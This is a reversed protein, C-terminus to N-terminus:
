SLKQVRAMHLNYCLESTAKLIKHYGPHGRLVEFWSSDLILQVLKEKSNFTEKWENIGICNIVISKVNSFYQKRQVHLAPCDLLMHIIDEDGLACCKCSASESTKSFKHKNTQLLYTGTVLRCKTIGRRVETITSEVSLWVPHTLGIRLSDINLYKLTSKGRAESQLYKSWHENVAKKVQTKWQEKSLESVRLDRVHPLQYLDLIQQVKSFFSQENDLNIAIQRTSLDKITSNTSSLINFLLSLHRKHLEAEVLLAGLILYVASTATRTPLSQFRHLNSIRFKSLINIQTVTLPLVELGFLLRPLVYCQYIKYSVKPNLGNSGHVGTNILSYLTRRALSLRDEINVLNENIESRFLGLHTTTSSLQIEKGNLNHSFTKKTVSKHQQLLVINSKMPHITVRKQKCNRQVVNSMLQLENECRSMLAVDDACTPCGCYVGGICLGLRQQELEELCPNLYTKYLFPSIIAGQRVGQQINFSESLNGLWKVKSSLGMYLDKVITWLAPHIGTEYLNDLLIVHNVVDFAKQADLTMLFLPASSDTKAEARAESVILASMVPSLGKTFGFQMSSQEFHQSIRPLLVTEFLKGIIPTVTIGRYNDLNTPDNSKKLVPTLIGSKFQEPVSKEIFIQNFLKALNDIFVPGSCKLHEATLGFEDPSKKSNLKSIGEEVEKPTVPDLIESSEECIQKIMKHRTNCLELYASDYGNDKPVSLDEYYNAFVKRQKDPSFIETGNVILSSTKQGCSGRNKRILQHFKDTNPNQMLENYFNKRDNFKEKRMQKRLSRKATVCEKRLEETKGNSVWLKYKQKCVSLLNRVKPSARWTPGKLKILKNPVAMETAKHLMKAMEDLRQVVTNKKENMNSDKQCEETLIQQFLNRDVKSWQFKRVSKVSNKKTIPGNPPSVSLQGQVIVHSSTNEPEKTGVQYTYLLDRESSTIYDIQSSGMGSHHFFTNMDSKEHTFNHDKMFDQLLKDHKNYPRPELLTGNFDGCIVIKHSQRYKMVLEHLIDICESYDLHSNMSSNNTPMYVNTICINENGKIEIAIIRENGENLRKVRSSWSKPWLISVGGKGRPLNFGVLPDAFDSCRTFIDKELVCQSM